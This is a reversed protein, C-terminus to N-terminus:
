NKAFISDPRIFQAFEWFDLYFEFREDDKRLVAQGILSIVMQSAQEYGTSILIALTLTVLHFLAQSRQAFM